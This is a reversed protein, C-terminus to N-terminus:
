CYCLFPLRDLILFSAQRRSLDDLRPLERGSCGGRDKLFLGVFERCRHRSFDLARNLVQLVWPKAPKRNRSQSQPLHIISEFTEKDQACGEDHLLLYTQHFDFAHSYNARARHAVANGM